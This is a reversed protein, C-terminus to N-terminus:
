KSETAKVDEVDCAVRFGLNLYRTVPTNWNRFSARVWLPSTHWAGGRRVRLRGEAPGKPDDTPSSKYYNEDYYDSVWEWVNGHMDHLGFPNAPFSGVPATYRFGDDAAITNEWYDGFYAKGTKDGTNAHKALQEPDDGFYYLGKGGARCAYEWEAETPLRYPKEEKESLWKCYAVADNWTVNVM